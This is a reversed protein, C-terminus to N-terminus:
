DGPVIRYIEFPEDITVRRDPRHEFSIQLSEERWTLDTVHELGLGGALRIESGSLRPRWLLYVPREPFGLDALLYRFDESATITNSTLWANPQGELSLLPPGFLDGANFDMLLTGDAAAQHAAAVVEAQNGGEGLRFIPWAVAVSFIVLYLLLLGAVVKRLPWLIRIWAAAGPPVTWDALRKLAYVIMMVALPFIVPIIRRMVMIQLPTCRMSWLYVFTAFLGTALMPSWSRRHERTVALGYGAFLLLLGPFSFYWGWRILNQSDYTPGSTTSIIGYMISDHDGIAPRIFYFFVFAGALAIWTLTKWLHSRRRLRGPIGKLWGPFFFFLAFAATAALGAIALYKRVGAFGYNFISSFYPGSVLRATLVALSFGLVFLVIFLTDSREWEYNIRRWFFVLLLPPLLVYFDIRVFFCATAFFAALIAEGMKERRGAEEQYALLALAMALFLAMTFMESTTYKAFYIMLPSIAALLVAALPWRRGLMRRALLLIGALSLLAAFTIAYFMHAPGLFLAFVAMFSPWLYFLQPMVKGASSDTIFYQKYLYSEFKLREDTQPAFVMGQREPAVESVVEVQMHIDGERQMRAAIDSYVGDDNWGFVVRGPPLFIVLGVLALLVLAAWERKRVRGLWALRRRAPILLALCLVLWCALLPWLGFRGALGLAEAMLAVAACGCTAALFIKEGGGMESKEGLLLSVALYGPLFLFATLAIFKIILM